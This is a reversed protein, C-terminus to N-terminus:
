RRRGHFMGLGGCVLLLVSAPEPIPSLVFMEPTEGVVYINGDSDITLGEANGALSSFDFQSQITGDRTVELLLSSEQSYILLNDADATGDLGPVVSLVQVGSLDSVGLNPTFLDNTTATGAAFDITAEFVRQPTKEKVLVFDGSTPDFSIAELGTNGITPGLSASQLGSRAVTGGQTYSFQYANQLREEVLVFQGNGMYTLGETDGFGTLTMSGIFTGDRGIEALFEGEDGLVFLTGSDTNYAVGSAESAETPPLLHRATLQYNALDFSGGALVPAALAAILVCSGLRM